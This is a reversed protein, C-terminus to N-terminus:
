RRPFGVIASQFLARLAQNSGPKECDAAILLIDKGLNQECVEAVSAAVMEFSRVDSRGDNSDFYCVLIRRQAQVALLKWASYQIREKIPYNDHEAVFLPPDWTDTCLCADLALYESRGYRDRCGKATAAAHPFEALGAEILASTARATWATNTAYAHCAEPDRTLADLFTTVIENAQM